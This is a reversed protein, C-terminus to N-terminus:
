AKIMTYDDHRGNKKLFLNKMLKKEVIQHLGALKAQSANSSRVGAFFQTLLIPRLNCCFHKSKEQTGDDHM